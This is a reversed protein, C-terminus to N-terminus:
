HVLPWPAEATPREVERAVLARTLTRNRAAIRRCRARLATM